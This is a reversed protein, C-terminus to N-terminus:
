APLTLVCPGLDGGPCTTSGTTTGLVTAGYSVYIVVQNGYFDVYNTPNYVGPLTSYQADVMELGDMNAPNTIQGGAVQAFQTGCINAGHMTTAQATEDDSPDLACSALISAVLTANSFNAGSLQTSTFNVQVAVANSFISRVMFAGQASAPTTSLAPDTVFLAGTFDVGNAYAQDMVTNLLFANSCVAAEYKNPDHISDQAILWAGRLTAGSLNAKSLKAGMLLAGDLTAFGLDAGSLNAYFLQAGTFNVKQLVIGAFNVYSPFLTSQAVLGLLSQPMAILKAGTLDLYSWNMGLSPVPVTSGQFLTATATSTGFAPTPGFITTSLDANNFKTGSLIAGTLNTGALTAGTFDAGTLNAGTLDAGDLNAGPLSAGTFNAGVLSVNHLDAGQLNAGVFQANAYSYNAALPQGNSFVVQGLNAGSFVVGATGAPDVLSLNTNWLNSGTWTAQNLDQVGNMVTGNVYANTFNCGAVSPNPLNSLIANELLAGTFNVGAISDIYGGASLDQGTLNLGVGTGTILLIPFQSSASVGLTQYKGISSGQMGPVYVSWDSENVANVTLYEGGYQLAVNGGGLNVLGFTANSTISQNAGGGPQSLWCQGSYLGGAVIAAYAKSDTAQFAVQGPGVWYIAFSRTGVRGGGGGGGQANWGMWGFGGAYPETNGQPWQYYFTCMSQGACSLSWNAIQIPFKPNNM